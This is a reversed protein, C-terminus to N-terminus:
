RALPPNQALSASPSSKSMKEDLMTGITNKREGCFVVGGKDDHAGAGGEALEDVGAVEGFEEDPGEAFVGFDFRDDEGDAFFLFNRDLLNGIGDHFGDPELSLVLPIRCLSIPLKFLRRTICLQPLVQRIELKRRKPLTPELAPTPRKNVRKM